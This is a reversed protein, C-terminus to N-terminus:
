RALARAIRAVVAEPRETVQRWTVRAVDIGRTALHADKGRDREFAQRTSHFAYGDVEFAFGQEPWLFDVEYGHIRANVNPAPLGARHILRKTEREAESRTIAPGTYTSLVRQLRVKGRCPREGAMSLVEENSILRQVLAENLAREVVREPETAALDRITQAVTTIPIGEVTAEVARVRHIM